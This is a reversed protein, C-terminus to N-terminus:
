FAAGCAVGAGAPACRVAAARARESPAPWLLAVTGAVAAAAGIPLAVWSLTTWTAASRDLDVCAPDNSGPACDRNFREADGRQLLVATVGTALAAGGLALGAVGWPRLPHSPRAPPPPAVAAVVPPAAVVVPAVPLPPEPAAPAEPRMEVTERVVSGPDVVFRRLVTAYGPARLEISIGGALVRLPAALPLTGVLAGDVRVEAGAAGGRLEVTGLHRGVVERAADLAARNRSVWPDRPAALAEGLLREADLWAGMSQRALGLNAATRPSPAIRYAEAFAAAAQEDRGARRLEFGGRLLAEVGADPPTQARAAPAGALAACLGVM